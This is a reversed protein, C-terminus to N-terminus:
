QSRLTEVPDISAARWAPVVCAIWSVLVLLIVVGGYAKLDLRSVGFLLAALARSALVSGVVGIGIGIWAVTMGQRLILGVIGSQSAGVAIRVGIERTREAISGALVSYSGIAALLLAVLGFAEFLVLAFRRQAESNRLRQDMTAIRVIPQERDIMRIAARIEPTLALIDRQGRVVLWRANDAFLQWQSATVYAADTRKSLSSQTVDGVVGVVTFWPGANPGIHLRQGIPNMGPIRRRAFSENIV